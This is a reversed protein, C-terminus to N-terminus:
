KQQGEAKAIHNRAEMLMQASESVVHEPSNTSIQDIENVVQSNIEVRQRSHLQNKEAAEPMATVQRSVDVRPTVDGYDESKRVTSMSHTGDLEETTSLSTKKRTKDSLLEDIYLMKQETSKGFTRPALDHKVSTIKTGDAGEAQRFDSGNWETVPLKHARDVLTGTIRGIQQAIEKNTKQKESKTVLQESM